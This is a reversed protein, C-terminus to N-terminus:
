DPTYKISGLIAQTDAALEPPDESTNPAQQWPITWPVAVNDAEETDIRTLAKVAAVHPDDLIDSIENVPAAPVGAALLNELIDVESREATIESIADDIKERDRLREAQDEAELSLDFESKIAEWHKDSAAAIFIYGDDATPYADYPVYLPHSAGMPQPDKGFQQQYALWYSMLTVGTRFLPITIYEGDGADRRRQLALLIAIVTNQATAIDIISTGARAPPADDYGTIAMLGSAAQIIPDTAIQNAYPGGDRYGKISTHILSRNIEHLRDYGLDLSELTGPSFNEVLVDAERVLALFDRRDKESKLDLGVSQKDRNLATFIARATEGASRMPDGHEPHEVKVVEAGLDSLLLTAYPAAVVHGLELVRLDALPQNGDTSENM